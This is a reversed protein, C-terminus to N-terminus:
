NIKSFLQNSFKKVEIWNEILGYRNPSQIIVAGINNGHLKIKNLDTLGVKNPIEILQVDRGSLYTKM